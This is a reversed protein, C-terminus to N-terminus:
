RRNGFTVNLDSGPCASNGYRNFAPSSASQMQMGYTFSGEVGQFRRLSPEGDRNTTVATDPDTFRATGDASTNDDQVTTFAAAGGGALPLLLLLLALTRLVPPM